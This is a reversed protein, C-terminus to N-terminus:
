WTKCLLLTSYLKVLDDYTMCVYGSFQSNSCQLLKSEQARSIGDNLPDGAWTLIETKPMASSCGPLGIIWFILFLGIAFCGYAWKDSYDKDRFFNRRM